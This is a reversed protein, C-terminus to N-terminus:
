RPVVPLGVHLRDMMMLITMCGSHVAELLVLVAVAAGVALGPRIAELPCTRYTHCRPLLSSSSNCTLGLAPRCIAEMAVAGVEALAQMCTGVVVAAVLVVWVAELSSRLDTTTMLITTRPHMCPPPHNVIGSVVVVVAVVVVVLEM